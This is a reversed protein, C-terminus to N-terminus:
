DDVRLRGRRPPPLEMRTEGPEDAVGIFACPVEGERRRPRIGAHCGREVFGRQPYPRSASRLRGCLQPPPCTPERRGFVCVTPLARDVRGFAMELGSVGRPRADQELVRHRAEIGPVLARDRQRAKRPRPRDARAVVGARLQKPSRERLDSVIGSRPDLDLAPKGPANVLDAIDCSRLRMRVSSELEGLFEALGTKKGA